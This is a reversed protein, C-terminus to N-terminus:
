LGDGFGGRYPPRRQPPQYTKSNFTGSLNTDIRKQTREAMTEEPAEEAKQRLIWIEGISVLAFGACVWTIFRYFDFATSQTYAYYALGLWFLFSIPCVWWKERWWAVVNIGLGTMLCMGIGIMGISAAMDGGEVYATAYTLSYGAGNYAWASYWLVNDSFQINSIWDTTTNDVGNYVLYGDAIGTPAAGYKARILSGTSGIGLTWELDVETNSALTASFNTPAAPAVTNDSGTATVEIYATSDALVGWPFVAALIVALALIYLLRLLSLGGSSYWWM